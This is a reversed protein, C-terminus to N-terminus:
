AASSTSPLDVTDSLLKSTQGERRHQPVRPLFSAGNSIASFMVALLCYRLITGHSYIRPNHQWFSNGAYEGEPALGTPRGPWVRQCVTMKSQWLEAPASFTATHFFALADDLNLRTPVSKISGDEKSIVNENLGAVGTVLKITSCPKIGSRVAWDQNVITLVKGTQAEM